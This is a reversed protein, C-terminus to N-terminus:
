TKRGKPAVSTTGVVGVDGNATVGYVQLGRTPKKVTGNRKGGRVVIASRKLEVETQYGGGRDLRHRASEILYKGSLKGLELLEISTGAALKTNGVM